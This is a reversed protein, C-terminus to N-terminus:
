EAGLVTPLRMRFTAGRGPESPELWLEGGHARAVERALTLGLGRGTSRTSYFAAFVRDRASEPIGPGGDTITLLVAPDPLDGIDVQVSGGPPTARLANDLLHTLALKLATPDGQVPNRSRDSLRVRGRDGRMELCSEILPGLATSHLDSIKRAGVWTEIDSIATRVDTLAARVASAGPGESAAAAAEAIRLPPDLAARLGFALSSVAEDRDDRAAGDTAASRDLLSKAAAVLEAGHFPKTLYVDAGGQRGEVRDSPDGRATLLIVPIGRTAADERIRRVLDFGTIGPMMVDSVIVDPLREKALRLGMEGDTAAIVDAEAALLTAVFRLMDPNDEVVLATRVRGAHQHRPAVRRETADALGMLRYDDGRVVEDHWEPLGVEARRDVAVSRRDKRREVPAPAASGIPLRLLFRSGEGSASEAWVRGGHAQALERVLALGIGAGGHQRTSSADVQHFRDFVRELEGAPIGIGTDHVVIEVEDALRRATLTVTGGRPTFKFANSLLNLVIRELQAVDATLAPLGAEVDLVLRLEKRQALPEAQETLAALLTSLDVSEMRLRLSAAEARSLELLDDVLRLLRLANREVLRLQDLAAAPLRAPDELMARVPAVILTLPTRLEHSINSFFRTKAKDLAQLRENAAAIQMRNDFDAERGRNLLMFFTIGVIASTWLAFNNALWVGAPGTRGDLVMALDYTLVLGLATGAYQLLRWPLQVVAFALVTLILAEHYRSEGGGTMRALQTVGLGTTWCSSLTLATGLRQLLRTHFTLAFHLLLFAVLAGRLTYAPRLSGEILFPDVAAFSAFAGAALLSVARIPAAARLRFESLLGDNPILLRSRM